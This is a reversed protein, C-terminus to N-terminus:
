REEEVSTAAVTNNSLIGANLGTNGYLAVLHRHPQTAFVKSAIQRTKVNKEGRM